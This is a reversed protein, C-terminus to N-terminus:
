ADDKDQGPYKEEIEKIQPRLVRMKASSKFSNYTLPLIILKIILTMIFIILGM